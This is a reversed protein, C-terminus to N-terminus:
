KNPTVEINIALLNSSIMGKLILVMTSLIVWPLILPFFIVGKKRAIEINDMFKNIFESLLIADAENLSAINSILKNKINMANTVFESDDAYLRDYSESLNKELSNKIIYSQIIEKQEGEGAILLINNPSSKLFENFAKCLFIFNKQKTLRGM